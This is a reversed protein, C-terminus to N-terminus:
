MLYVVRDVLIYHICVCMNACLCAYVFLNFSGQFLSSVEKFSEQFERSLGKFSEQFTKSVEKFCGKLKWLFLWLCGFAGWFVDEFILFM